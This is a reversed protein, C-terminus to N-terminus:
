EGSDDARRLLRGGAVKIIEASLLMSVIAPFAANWDNFWRPPSLLLLLSVLYIALYVFFRVKVSVVALPAFQISTVNM